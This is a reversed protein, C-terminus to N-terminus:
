LWKRMKIQLDDLEEARIINGQINFKKRLRANKQPGNRYFESIIRLDELAEHAEFGSLAMISKKVASLFKRSNGRLFGELFVGKPDNIKRSWRQIIKLADLTKGGTKFCGFTRSSFVESFNRARILELEWGKKSENMRIMLYNEPRTDRQNFPPKETRLLFGERILAAEESELTEYDIKRVREILRHVKRPLELPSISRYSTLRSRLCKAKGVYLLSGDRDYMKYVGPCLPLDLFFRDSFSLKLPNIPTFLAKM